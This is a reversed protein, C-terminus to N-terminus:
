HVARGARRVPKCGDAIWAALSARDWRILRGLRIPAPMRGADILSYIHRRSCGIIARVDDVTALTLIDNSANTQSM